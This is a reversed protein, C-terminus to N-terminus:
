RLGPSPVQLGEGWVPANEERGEGQLGPPNACPFTHSPSHETAPHARPILTTLSPAVYSGEARGAV